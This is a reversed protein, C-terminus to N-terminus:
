LGVASPDSAESGLAFQFSISQTLTVPRNKCQTSVLLISSAPENTQQSDGDSRRPM